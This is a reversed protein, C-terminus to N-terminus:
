WFAQSQFISVDKDSTNDTRLLIRLRKEIDEKM